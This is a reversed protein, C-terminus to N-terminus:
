AKGNERAPDFSLSFGGEFIRRSQMAKSRHVAAVAVVSIRQVAVGKALARHPLSSRMLAAKPLVYEPVGQQLCPLDDRGNNSLDFAPM